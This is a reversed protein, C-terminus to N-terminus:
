KIEYGLTFTGRSAGIAKFGQARLQDNTTTETDPLTVVVRAPKTAAGAPQSSAHAVAAKAVDPILHPDLVDVFTMARALYLDGNPARLFMGFGLPLSASDAERLEFIQPSEGASQASHYKQIAEELARQSAEGKDSVMARMMGERMESGSEVTYQPLAGPESAREPGSFGSRNFHPGNPGQPGDLLGWGDDCNIGLCARCLVSLLFLYALRHPM